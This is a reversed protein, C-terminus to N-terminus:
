DNKDGASELRENLAEQEELIARLHLIVQTLSQWSRMADLVRDLTAIVADQAELLRELEAEGEAVRIATRHAAPAVRAAADTAEGLVVLMRDLLGTDFIERDRWAQVIEDYVAYPFVPDGARATADAEDGETTAATGYTLRHHRDLIALIRENPIEAGLRDYVWANFIELLGQVAKDTDQAIKAQNFQISKLLDREADGIESGLL